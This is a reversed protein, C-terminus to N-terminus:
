HMSGPSLALTLYDITRPEVLFAQLGALLAADAVEGSHDAREYLEGRGTERAAQM